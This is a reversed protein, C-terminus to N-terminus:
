RAFAALAALEDFLLPASALVAGGARVGNRGPYPLVRGGAEEVLLLGATADWPHMHPELYADVRGAAVHALMLAGAGHDKVEAGRELLARRLRLHAELDHRQVFGHLVLARDLSATSSVGMPRENMRAGQGAVATFLEDNPADYVAAIRRAGNEVLGVSVCWYRVGHVFNLTGDIPDVLWTRDGIAGGGEEGYMSDGPFAIAIRDRCLAEVSRDAISVYDQPNAKSEATYDLEHRFYRLALAGADRALVAAFRARADLEDSTM